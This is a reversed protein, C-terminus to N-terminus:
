MLDAIREGIVMATANTNARVCDPMISADAVRLGQVGHVKGHQDVVSMADSAPGMKCTGSAHHSTRVNRMMWRDLTKDSRLDADTPGVREAIMTRYPEQTALEICLCVAERLRQRDFPDSLFNFDLTPQIHLDSSTLALRGAGSALQLCATMSIGLPDADSARHYDQDKAFSLPFIVMDNRLNSGRANYRLALQIRPAAPDLRFSADMKWTPSVQPHDRLNRGVGPLDHVVPVGANRLQDAPGIGSLLLTHPSGIAGGSLVTEEGSVTFMESGSEVLVGTARKGEFLVRHVLCDPRITLNMRHRAQSLYGMSTSWRVGDHNNLPLPGVGTSNPDNHDVCDPFGIALCADHFARQDSNWEERRFRRAIIPGDTGHFDGRFDPDAEMKRFFPLLELFSWKVNGAAAWADYDEPLGRLLIMSNVASSGGVVKGRPVAMPGADDTARAVFDWDHRSDPGFMTAWLSIDRGSGYKIEDPMWDLEPYDPGAELLLVSRNPDESLRTALVAGASGAGVIITDYQM